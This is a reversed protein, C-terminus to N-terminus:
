PKIPETNGSTYKVLGGAIVVFQGDDQIMAYAETNTMAVWWSSSWKSVGADNYLVFHGDAQMCAKTAGSGPTNTRWIVVGSKSYVVMNGDTQFALRVYGLCSWVEEGPRLCRNTEIKNNCAPTPTTLASNCTLMEFAGTTATENGNEAIYNLTKGVHIKGLYAYGNIMIRGLGFTFGGGVFKIAGAVSSSANGTTAVYHLDPHDLIYYASSSDLTNGAPMYVGAASAKTSIRGPCPNQNQPVNNGRGVFAISGDQAIGGVFGNRFPANPNNNADYYVFTGPFIFFILM